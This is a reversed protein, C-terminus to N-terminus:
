KEKLFREYYFELSDEKVWVMGIHELLRFKGNSRRITEIHEFIRKKFEVVTFTSKYKNCMHCSAILNHELNTGGRALPFIHDVQFNDPELKVGCYGCRGRTKNYIKQRKFTKFQKRKAM